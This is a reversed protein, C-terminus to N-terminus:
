MERSDHECNSESGRVDKIFDVCLRVVLAHLETHRAASKLPRRGAEVQGHADLRATLLELCRACHACHASREAHAAVLAEVFSLDWVHPFYAPDHRPASLALADHLAFGRCLAQFAAATPDLYQLAALAATAAAASDRRRVLCLAASGLDRQSWSAVGADPVFTRSLQEVLALLARRLEADRAAAEARAHRACDARDFASAGDSSPDRRQRKARPAGSRAAERAPSHHLETWAVHQASSLRLAPPASSAAAAAAAGEASLSTAPLADVESASSPPPATADAFDGRAARCISLFRRVRGANDDAGEDVSAVSLAAVATGFAREADSWRRQALLFEGLDCAVRRVLRAERAKLADVGTRQARGLAASIADVASSTEKASACYVDAGDVRDATRAPNSHRLSWQHLALEVVAMPALWAGHARQPRKGSAAFRQAACNAAARKLLEHTRRSSWGYSTLVAGLEVDEVELRAVLTTSLEAAERGGREVGEALRLLLAM